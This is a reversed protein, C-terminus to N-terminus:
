VTEYTEQKLIYYINKEMGTRSHVWVRSMEPQLQPKSTFNPGQVSEVECTEAPFYNKKRLM